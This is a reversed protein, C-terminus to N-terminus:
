YKSFNIRILVWKGNYKVAAYGGCCEFIDEFQPKVLYRRVPPRDRKADIIGWLGSEDKVGVISDMLIHNPYSPVLANGIGYYENTSHNFNDIIIFSGNTTEVIALGDSNFYGYNEYRCPIVLKGIKNKYGYLHTDPDIVSYPYEAQEPIQYEIDFGIYPVYAINTCETKAFKFTCLYKNRAEFSCHSYIPSIVWKYEKSIM